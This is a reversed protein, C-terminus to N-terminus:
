PVFPCASSIKSAHALGDEDVDDTVMTAAAQVDAPANGMAVSTGCAAFMTLDIAADGFAAADSPQAHLHDLVAAVASQKSVGAPALDGFLATAGAGGWTHNELEPFRQATEEFDAYSGLIYSIKNVDDRAQLRALQEGFVMGHFAVTVPVPERGKAAQYAAMPGQAAEEFGPSAFLGANCEIYFECGRATLWDVIEATQQASLSHRYIETGNLEVYGGNAGVLGDVGLDWLFQPIEARSRGTNLLVAHGYARAARVAAAASPLIENSYNVLTGDVDLFIIM